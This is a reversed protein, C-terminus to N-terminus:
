PLNARLWGALQTPSDAMVVDDSNIRLPAAPSAACVSNLAHPTDLRHADNDRDQLPVVVWYAAATMQNVACDIAGTAGADGTLYTRAASFPLGAANNLAVILDGVDQYSAAGVADATREKVVALDADDAATANGARFVSYRALLSDEPLELGVSVYPFWGLNVGDACVDATLTEYGDPNAAPCPLRGHRLAFSRVMSQLHVAEEKGRAYAQQAVVTEYGSFAAWSLLGIVVLVVSMEVLSFGTQALPSATDLQFRIM